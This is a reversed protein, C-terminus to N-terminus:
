LLNTIAAYITAILFALCKLAILVTLAKLLLSPKNATTTQTTTMAKFNIQNIQGATPTAGFLKRNEFTWRFPPKKTM